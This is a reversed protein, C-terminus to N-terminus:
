QFDGRKWPDLKDMEMIIKSKVQSPQVGYATGGPFSPVIIPAFFRWRSLLDEGKSVLKHIENRDTVHRNSEFELRLSEARPYWDFRSSSRHLLEKLGYRYMRTIRLKHPLQSVIEYFPPRHKSTLYTTPVKSMSCAFSFRM